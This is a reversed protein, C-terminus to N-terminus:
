NNTFHRPADSMSWGQSFARQTATMPKRKPKALRGIRYGCYFAILYFGLFLLQQTM